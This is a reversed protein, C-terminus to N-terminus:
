LHIDTFPVRRTCSSYLGLRPYNNLISDLTSAASAFYGLSRDLITVFLQTYETRLIYYENTYTAVETIVQPLHMLLTLVHNMAEGGSSCTEEILTEDLYSSAENPVMAYIEFDDRGTVSEALRQYQTTFLM